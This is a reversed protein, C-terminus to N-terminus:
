LSCEACHLSRFFFTLAMDALLPVSTAGALEAKINSIILRKLTANNKAIIQQAGPPLKAIDPLSNVSLCDQRL